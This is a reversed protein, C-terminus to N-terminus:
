YPHAPSPSCVAYQSVSSKSWLQNGKLYTNHSSNIFYHHLPQDM